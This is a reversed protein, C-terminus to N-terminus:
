TARSWGTRRRRVGLGPSGLRDELRSSLTQRWPLCASHFMSLILCSRAPRTSSAAAL